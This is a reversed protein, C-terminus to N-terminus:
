QDPDNALVLADFLALYLDVLGLRANALAETPVWDLEHAHNWFEWSGNDLADYDDMHTITFFDAAFRGAGLASSTYLRVSEYSSSGLGKTTTVRLINFPREDKRSM